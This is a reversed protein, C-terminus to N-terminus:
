REDQERPTVVLIEYTRSNVEKREFPMYIVGHSPHIKGLLTRGNYVARGTYLHEGTESYGTKLANELVYGNEERVWTVECDTLTLLEVKTNVKHASCNWSTYVAKLELVYNAPLLDEYLSVRAVYTNYGNHDTGCQVACELESSSPQSDRLDLPIWQVRREVEKVKTRKAFNFSIRHMEQRQCPKRCQPYSPSCDMWRQLCEKHFVHGCIVISYIFDNTTYFENCIGCSVYFSASRTSLPTAKKPIRAEM